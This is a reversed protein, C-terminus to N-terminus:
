HSIVALSPGVTTSTPTGEAKEAKSRRASLEVYIVVMFILVALVYNLGYPLSALRELYPVVFVVKGAICSMTVPGNAISGDQDTVGNNDGKTIFGNTQVQVVRHIVSTAVISCPPNYVIIDGAHIDARGVSQLFVLDGPELTPLMSYSEVRRSYALLVAAFAILIVVFAVLTLPAGKDKLKLQSTGLHGATLCKLRSLM